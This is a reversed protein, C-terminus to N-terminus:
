GVPIGNVGAAHFVCLFPRSQPGKQQAVGDSGTFWFTCAWGFWMWLIGTGLLV